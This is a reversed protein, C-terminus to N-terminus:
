TEHQSETDEDDPEEGSASAMLATYEKLLRTRAEQDGEQQAKALLSKYQERAQARQRRSKMLRLSDSLARSAVDPDVPFAMLYAWHTVEESNRGLEAPAVSWKGQQIDEILATYMRRYLPVLFDAPELAACATQAYERSEIMLRLLEEEKSLITPKRKAAPRNAPTVVTPGHPALRRLEGESIGVHNSVEVLLAARRTPDTVMAALSLFERTIRERALFDLGGPEHRALEVRYEVIGPATEMLARFRDAGERRLFTDPDDGGPLVAIDVGIGANFAVDIGRVTARQGATDADFILTMRGCFRGLLGAQEVTLATGSVAVVNEIGFEIMTLWDLYGEVVLVRGAKRIAERAVSLGYLIKGKHYVETEPSNLYKPQDDPAIARAGFGVVKGSLNQIPFMIRNRFRDYPQDGLKSELTLGAALLAKTNLDRGRANKTLTDFALPAYGIGARRLTVDQFGRKMLYELASRGVPAFLARRYIEDAMALCDFIDQRRRADLDGERSREPLRIGARDACYKLTEPFSWGEHEMLFAFVDGGKGCGFCHFFQRDPHVSFSPTKETHFPCLGLLSAGRRKLTVYQGVIAVIDTAERVQEKIADDPM